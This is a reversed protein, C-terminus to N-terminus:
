FVEGFPFIVGCEEKQGVETISDGMTPVKVVKKELLPSTASVYMRATTRVLPLTSSRSAMRLMMQPVLRSGM